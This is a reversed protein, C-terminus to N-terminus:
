KQEKAQTIAAAFEEARQSGILLRNGDIFVLQVGRDGQTNYASNCGDWSKRVGWGGYEAIPRYTRAEWSAIDALPIDKKVFPFFHVHINEADVRVTLRAEVMLWVIGGFVVVVIVGPVILLQGKAPEVHAVWGFIGAVFGAIGLMFLWWQSGFSQDEEFFVAQSNMTAEPQFVEL